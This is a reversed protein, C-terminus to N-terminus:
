LGRMFQLDKYKLSNMLLRIRQALPFTPSKLGDRARALAMYRDCQRWEVRYFERFVQHIESKSLGLFLLLTASEVRHEIQQPTAKTYGKKQGPRIIPRQPAQPTQKPTEAFSM